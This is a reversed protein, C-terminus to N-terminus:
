TSSPRGAPRPTPWCDDGSQTDPGPDIEEAVYPELPETRALRRALHLGAVICRRDTEAALYDAVIAPHAGPDLKAIVTCSVGGLAVGM